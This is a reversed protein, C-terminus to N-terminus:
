YEKLHEVQKELYSKRGSSSARACIAATNTIKGKLLGRAEDEPIRFERGIRAAKIRGQKVWRIVTVRNAGLIEAVRGTRLLKLNQKM